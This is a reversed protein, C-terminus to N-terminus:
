NWRAAPAFPHSASLGGCVPLAIGNVYSADDSALFLVANAIEEAVAYRGLPNLQGVKGVTGRQRAGDFLPKTMGTEVLGPCVANVRIGTQALNWAASSALSVVAAKSASYDIGGAGSRLGAVSATLILSGGPTLKSPHSLKMAESGYKIALFGSAVNVRMTEALDEAELTGLPGMTGPVGANAFFVDLRGEEKVVREVVKKIEEEDACDCAHTEVRVEDGYKEKVAEKLSPLNSDDHDLAYIARAGEHAFLLVSARGIGTLSGVGTVICVQGALRGSRPKHSLHSRLQSIRAEVSSVPSATSNSSGASSSSSPSPM